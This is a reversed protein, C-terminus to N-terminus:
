GGNGRVLVTTGRGWCWNWNGKGACVTSCATYQSPNQTTECFSSKKLLKNITTTQSNFRPMQFFLFLFFPVPHWQLSAIKSLCTAVSLNNNLDMLFWCLSRLVTTIIFLVCKEVRSLQEGNTEFVGSTWYKLYMLMKKPLNRSSVIFIIPFLTLFILCGNKYIPWTFINRLVIFMATGLSLPLMYCCRTIGLHLASPVNQWPTFCINSIYHM